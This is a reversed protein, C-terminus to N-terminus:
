FGFRETVINKKPLGLQVLKNSLDKTMTDPGCIFVTSQNSVTRALAHSTIYAGKSTVYRHCVLGKDEFTKLEDSFALYQADRVSYLLTVKKGQTLMLPIKAIFPAVGIGGAILAVSKTKALHSSFAGRPGDLLVRTGKKLHVLQDSFDGSAKATIRLMNYGPELSFSFPHAEYWLSKDLFRWSAYQGPIFQFNQVENGCIYISYTDKAEKVVHDVKFDYQWAHIFMKAFRFYGLLAFVVVFMGYWAYKFWAHKVMDGGISVQHVFTLLIALYVTIHAAYWVEYRLHKRIVGLTLFTACFFIITGITAKFVDEFGTNLDLFQQLFSSNSGLSYGFTVFIVHGVILFILFYGNLKHLEITDELSFNREYLPIRSMLLVELLICFSALLGFLRAIVILRDASTALHSGSGQWWGFLIIGLIAFISGYFVLKATLHNDISDTM